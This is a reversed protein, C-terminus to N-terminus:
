GIHPLMDSWSPTSYSGAPLRRLSIFAEIIFIAKVCVMVVGLILRGHQFWGKSKRIFCCWVLFDSCIYLFLAVALACVAIRWVTNEAETPFFANWGCGHIAVYFISFVCSLLWRPLAMDIMFLHEYDALSNPGDVLHHGESFGNAYLFDLCGKCTRFDIEIPEKIGQPKNWWAVYLGLGCCVQGITNLELLTIPLHTIRRAATQTLLVTVQICVVIKALRDSKQRKDIKDDLFTASPLMDCLALTEFGVDNLFKSREGVKFQLGGSNLLFGHSLNWPESGGVIENRVPCFISHEPPSENCPGLASLEFDTKSTMSKENRSNKTRRAFMMQEFATALALEPLFLICLCWIFKSSPIDWFPVTGTWHIWLRPAVDPHIATWICLFLTFLCEWLLELTGGGSPDPVFSPETTNM